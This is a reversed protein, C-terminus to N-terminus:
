TNHREKSGNCFDDGSEKSENCVDDGDYQEPNVNVICGVRIIKVNMLYKELNTQIYIWRIM